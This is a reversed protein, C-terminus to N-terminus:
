EELEDLAQKYGWFIGRLLGLVLLADISNTRTYKCELAFSSYGSAYDHRSRIEVGMRNDKIYKKIAEEILSLYATNSM